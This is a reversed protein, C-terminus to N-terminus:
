WFPKQGVPPAFESLPVGQPCKNKLVSQGHTKNYIGRRMTPMQKKIIGEILPNKLPTYGRKDFFLLFFQFNQLVKVWNIYFKDM